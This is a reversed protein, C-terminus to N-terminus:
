SPLGRPGGRQSTFFPPSSNKRFADSKQGRSAAQLAGICGICGGSLPGFDLRRGEGDVNVRDRRSKGLLRVARKRRRLQLKLMRRFRLLSELTRAFKLRLSSELTRAFLGLASELTRALRLRGSELSRGPGLRLRHDLTPGLGFRNAERRRRRRPGVIGVGAYDVDIRRTAHLWRTRRPSRTPASRARL